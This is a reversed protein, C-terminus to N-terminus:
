NRARPTSSGTCVDRTDAHYSRPVSLPRVKPHKATIAKKLDRVTHEEVPKGFSIFTPLDRALPTSKAASVKVQVM